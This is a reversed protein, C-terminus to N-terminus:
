ENDVGGDPEEIPETLDKELIENELAEKEAAAEYHMHEHKWLDSFDVTVNLGFIENIQEAFKQRAKLMDLVHIMSISDNGSIEATTQEAMKGTSQNNHGYRLYFWRMIDDRFHSLYQIKDINKVDTLDIKSFPTGDSLTYLANDSLITLPEGDKMNNFANEIAAKATKDNAIIFPNYRSYQVNYEMSLDIESLMYAVRDIYPLENSRISDNWGFAITDGIKGQMNGGVLAAEINTGLGNYNLDGSPYSRVTAYTDTGLVKGFACGGSLLALNLYHEDIETPLGGWQFISMVVNLLETANNYHRTNEKRKASMEDYWNFM